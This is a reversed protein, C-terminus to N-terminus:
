FCAPLGRPYNSHATFSVTRFISIRISCYSSWARPQWHTWESRHEDGDAKGRRLKEMIMRAARMSEEDQEEEGDGDGDDNDNDDGTEKERGRGGLCDERQLRVHTQMKRSAFISVSGHTVTASNWPRPKRKPRHKSRLWHPNGVRTSLGQIEPLNQGLKISGSWFKKIGTNTLTIQVNQHSQCDTNTKFIEELNELLSSFKSFPSIAIEYFHIRRYNNRPPPEFRYVSPTVPLIGQVLRPTTWSFLFSHERYSAFRLKGGTYEANQDLRTIALKQAARVAVPPFSLFPPTTTIVRM